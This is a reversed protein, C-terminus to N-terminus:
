SYHLVDLLMYSAAVNNYGVQRQNMANTLTSITQLDAASWRVAGAMLDNFNFVVIRRNKSVKDLWDSKHACVWFIMPQNDRNKRNKRPLVPPKGRHISLYDNGIKLVWKLKFGRPEKKCLRINQDNISEGGFAYRKYVDDFQYMPNAALIKEKLEVPTQFCDIVYDPGVVFAGPKLKNSDVGLASFVPCYVSYPNGAALIRIPKESERNYTTYIESILFHEDTSLYREGGVTNALIEDFFLYKVNRLLLSKIRNMPTSLGILRFFVPYKKISIPAVPGVSLPAVHVDAIGSSVDGKLYLLQIAEEPKLFKNLLTAIDDIYASTMDVIRRRLVLSPMEEFYFANYLKIWSSVSKGSM